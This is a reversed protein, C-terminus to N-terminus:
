LWSVSGDLEILRITKRALNLVFVISRQVAQRIGPVQYLSNKNGGFPDMDVMISNVHTRSGFQVQAECAHIYINCVHVIVDINIGYKTESTAELRVIM